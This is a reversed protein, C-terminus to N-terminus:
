NPINKIDIEIAGSGSAPQITKVKILGYNVNGETVYILVDGAKLQTVATGGSPTLQKDVDSSMTIADFEAATLSTRRLKTVNRKSWSSVTNFIQTVQADNPSAFTAQNTAGYYYIWDVDAPTANAEALKMVNNKLSFFSGLTANTQGGLSVNNIAQVAVAPKTVTLTIKRSTSEGNSMTVVVEVEVAGPTGPLTYSFDWSLNTANIKLTDVLKAKSGGSVSVFAEAKDLKESGIATIGFFLKTGASVTANASTYVNSGGASGSKWSFEPKPKVVDEDEGCSTFGIAFVGALMLMLGIKKM